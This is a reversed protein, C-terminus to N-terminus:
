SFCGFNPLGIDFDTQILQLKVVKANPFVFIRTSRNVLFVTQNAKFKIVKGDPFCSVSKIM